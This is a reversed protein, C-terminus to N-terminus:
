FVFAMSFVSPLFSITRGPLKIINVFARVNKDLHCVVMYIVYNIHGLCVFIIKLLYHKMHYCIACYYFSFLFRYDMRQFYGCCIIANRSEGVYKKVRM